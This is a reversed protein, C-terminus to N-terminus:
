HTCIKQVKSKPCSCRLHIRDILELQNRSTTYAYPLALFGALGCGILVLRVIWNLAAKIDKYNKKLFDHIIGVHSYSFWAFSDEQHMMYAMDTQCM